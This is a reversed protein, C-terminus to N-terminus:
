EIFLINNGNILGGGHICWMFTGIEVFVDIEHILFSVAKKTCLNCVRMFSVKVSDMNFTEAHREFTGRNTEM